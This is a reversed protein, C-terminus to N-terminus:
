GQTQPLPLQSLLHPGAWTPPGPALVHLPHPPAASARSPTSAPRGGAAQASRPANFCERDMKPFASGDVGAAGGRRPRSGRAAAPSSLQGPPQPPGKGTARVRPLPPGAGGSRGSHGGLATPNSIRRLHLARPSPEHNSPVEGRPGRAGRRHLHAAAPLSCAAPRGSEAGLPRPKTPGACLGSCEAAGKTGAAGQGAGAGGWGSRARSAARGPSVPAEFGGPAHRRGRDPGHDRRGPGKTGEPPAPPSLPGAPSLQPAWGSGPWERGAGWGPPARCLGNNM